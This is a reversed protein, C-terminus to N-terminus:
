KEKLANISGQDVESIAKRPSMYNMTYLIDKDLNEHDSIM